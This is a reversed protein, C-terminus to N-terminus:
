ITKRSILSPSIPVNSFSMFTVIELEQIKWISNPYLFCITVFHPAPWCLESYSFHQFNLSRPISIGPYPTSLGGLPSTATCLGLLQSLCVKCWSHPGCHILPCSLLVALIGPDAHGILIQPILLILSRLLLHGSGSLHWSWVFTSFNPTHSPACITM